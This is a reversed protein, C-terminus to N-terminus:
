ASKQRNDLSYAGAGQGVLLLFGGAISVNKLFMIMQTQDSFDAHFLVASVLCFGALALAAIRTQWGVVIALGGIIELAIVLPLLMGPVGVFEMYGQTDAYSTIKGFGSMVFMLAILVRGAPMALKEIHQM